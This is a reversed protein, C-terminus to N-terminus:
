FCKYIPYGTGYPTNTSACNQSASWTYSEKKGACNNKNYVTGSYHANTGACSKVIASKSSSPM